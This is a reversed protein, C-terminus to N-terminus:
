TFRFQNRMLNLPCLADGYRSFGLQRCVVQADENGWLDDCVTGWEGNLYIEVRGESSEAGGVLRVDGESGATDSPAAPTFYTEMNKECQTKTNAAICIQRQKSRM